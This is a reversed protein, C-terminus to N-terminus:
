VAAEQLEEQLLLFLTEIDSKAVPYGAENCETMESKSEDFLKQNVRLRGEVEIFCHPINEKELKGCLKSVDEKYAFGLAKVPVQLHQLGVAVNIGKGAAEEM